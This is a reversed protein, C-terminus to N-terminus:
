MPGGVSSGRMIPSLDLQHQRNRDPVSEVDVAEYGSRVIQYRQSASGGGSRSVAVQFSSNWRRWPRRSSYWSRKM